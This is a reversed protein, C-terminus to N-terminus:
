SSRCCAHSGADGRQGNCSLERTRTQHWLVRMLSSRAGSPAAGVLVDAGTLNRESTVCILLYLLTAFRKLPLSSFSLSRLWNIERAMVAM